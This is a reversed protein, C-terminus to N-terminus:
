RGDRLGNTATGRLTIPQAGTVKLPAPFSALKHTHPSRRELTGDLNATVRYAKGPQLKRNGARTAGTFSATKPARLLVRVVQDGPAQGLSTGAYYHGLIDRYSAGHQAFGLAGFQSMGVGHGYGAGDITFTDKAHAAPAAALATVAAIAALATRRMLLPFRGHRDSNRHYPGGLPPWVRM